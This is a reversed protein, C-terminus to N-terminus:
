GIKQAASTMAGRGDNLKPINVYFSGNGVYYGITASPKDMTDIRQDVCSGTLKDSVQWNPGFGKGKPMQRNAQLDRHKQWPM